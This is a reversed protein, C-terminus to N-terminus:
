DLPSLLLSDVEDGTLGGTRVCFGGHEFRLDARNIGVEDVRLKFADVELLLGQPWGAWSRPVEYSPSAAHAPWVDRLPRKWVCLQEVGFNVGWAFLAIAQQGANGLLDLEFALDAHIDRGDESMVLDDLTVARIAQLTTGVLEDLTARARHEDYGRDPPNPITVSEVYPKRRKRTSTRLVTRDPRERV